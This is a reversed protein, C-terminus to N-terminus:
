TDIMPQVFAERDPCAPIFEVESASIRRAFGRLNRLLHQL